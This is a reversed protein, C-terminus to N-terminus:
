KKGTLIKIGKRATNKYKEAEEKNVKKSEYKPYSFEGEKTSGKLPFVGQWSNMISQNLIAVQLIGSSALKNLENIILEEGRETLPKRNKIRMVKFEKWAKKFAISKGKIVNNDNNGNKCEQIITDSENRKQKAKLDSKSDSKTDSKYNKLSQYGNYNLVKIIFGRTAKRTAIMTASKLWRICHDIENKNAKTKRMIWDYKMFCSGRNFQKNNKHNVENILYFWIKFWKDPKNYFIDSEITQRAWLTAGGNIKPM